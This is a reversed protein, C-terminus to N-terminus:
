PSMSLPHLHAVLIYSAWNAVSPGATRRTQYNQYCLNLILKKLRLDGFGQLPLKWIWLPVLGYCVNQMFITLSPNLEIHWLLIVQFMCRCYFYGLTLTFQQLFMEKSKILFDRQQQQQQKLNIKKSMSEKLHPHTWDTKWSVIIKASYLEYCFSAAGYNLHVHVAIWRQWVSIYIHFKELVWINYFIMKM